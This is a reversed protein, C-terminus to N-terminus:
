LAWAVSWTSESERAPKQKFAPLSKGATQPHIELGELRCGRYTVGEAPHWEYIAPSGEVYEVESIVQYRVNQCNSVLMVPIEEGAPAILKHTPTFSKM